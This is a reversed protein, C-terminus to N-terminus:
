QYGSFSLTFCCCVQVHSTSLEALQKVKPMNDYTQVSINMHFIPKCRWHCKLMSSPGFLEKSLEYYKHTMNITIKGFFQRTNHNDVSEYMDSCFINSPFILSLFYIELSDMFLKVCM